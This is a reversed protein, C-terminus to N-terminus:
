PAQKGGDAAAGPSTPVLGAPGEKPHVPPNIPSLLGGCEVREAGRHACGGLLIGVILFCIFPNSM